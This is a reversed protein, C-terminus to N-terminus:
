HHLWPHQGQTSTCSWLAARCQELSIPGITSEATFLPAPKGHEADNPSDGNPSSPSSWAGAEAMLINYTRSAAHTDMVEVGVGIALLPRLVEPRLFAPARGHGGAAGRTRQGPPRPPKPNTWSPWRTACPSSWEPPRACCPQPSTPRRGCPGPPSKAKPDSLSRPPFRVQNVEIYGDGYATVTNLAATAPDTHLKLLVGAQHVRHYRMPIVAHQLTDVTAPGSRSPDAPAPPKQSFPSCAGNKAM